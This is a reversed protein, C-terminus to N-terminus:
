LKPYRSVQAPRSALLEVPLVPCSHRGSMDPGGLRTHGLSWVAAALGMLKRSCRMATCEAWHTHCGAAQMYQGAAALTHGLIHGALRSEPVAPTHGATAPSGQEPAARALGLSGPPVQRHVKKGAAREPATGPISIATM